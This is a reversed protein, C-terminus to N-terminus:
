LKNIELICVSVNTGAKKFAGNEVARFCYDKDKLFKVLKTNTRNNPIIAVLKGGDKLFSWAHEIHALFTNRLYPPNMIVRDYLNNEAIPAPFKLFDQNLCEVKPNWGFRECLREYYGGSLEIATVSYAGNNLAAEVLAGHGASPELVQLQEDRNYMDAYEAVREALWDPTFFAGLEKKENTTGGKELGAILKDIGGPPFIHCKEKKNWKGGCNELHKNVTLYTQRDLQISPLFFKDGEISSQKLINEVEPTIANM